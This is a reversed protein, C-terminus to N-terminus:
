GHDVLVWEIQMRDFPDQHIMPLDAVALAHHVTINLVQIHDNTLAEPLNGPIDLRGISKKIAMEWATAASVYVPNNGDQIAQRAQKSLKAPDELWWLIAHTDLLYGNM